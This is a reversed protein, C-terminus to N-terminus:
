QVSPKQYRAFRYATEAPLQRGAVPLPEHDLGQAVIDKIGRYGFCRFHLARASVRESREPHRELLGVIAQVM